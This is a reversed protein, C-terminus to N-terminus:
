YGMRREEWILVADELILTKIDPRKNEAKVKNGTEDMMSNFLIPSLFSGQSAGNGTKLWASKALEM